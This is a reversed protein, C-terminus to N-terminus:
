SERRIGLREAGSAFFRELARLFGAAEAFFDRGAFRASALFLRALAAFFRSGERAARPYGPREKPEKPSHTQRAASSNTAPAGELDVRILPADPRLRGPAAPRAPIM